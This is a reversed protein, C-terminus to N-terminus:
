LEVKNWKFRFHETPLPSGAKMKEILIKYNISDNRPLTHTSGGLVGEIWINKIHKNKSIKDLRNRFNIDTYGHNGTFDEDYAGAEFFLKKTILFTSPHIDIIQKNHFYKAEMTYYAHSDFTNNLLYEMTNNPIIYDMDTRVVWETKAVFVSLNSAGGDNWSLDDLVEYMEIDLDSVKPFINVLKQENKSCDDVLVIKLKKKVESSYSNWCELQIPILDSANYYPISLTLENPM